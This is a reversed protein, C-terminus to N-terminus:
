ISKNKYLIEKFRKVTDTNLLNEIEKRTEDWPAAQIVNLSLAEDFKKKLKSPINIQEPANNDIFKYYLKQYNKSGVEELFNISDMAFEKKAHKEFIQWYVKSKKITRYNLSQIVGDQYNLSKTLEKRIRDVEATFTRTLVHKSEGHLGPVCKSATQSAAKDLDDCADLADKIPKYCMPGGKSQEKYAAEFAKLAAALNGKDPLTKAKNDKWWKETLTVKTNKDMQSNEMHAM